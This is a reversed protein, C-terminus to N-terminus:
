VECDIGTVQEYKRVTAEEFVQLAYDPKRMKTIPKLKMYYISASPWIWGSIRIDLSDVNPNIDLALM